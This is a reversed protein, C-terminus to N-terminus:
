SAIWNGHFGPPIRHPIHVLAVPPEAFRTADLIVLDTTESRPDIVYGMLWGDGEAADVSRPVFVFEGPVKGAGFDHVERTGAVVDHKYLRSGISFDVSAGIALTFAFRYPKAIFREDPRPFEQADADIVKRVVRRAAADITWRDFRLQRSDPGYPSDAFMTGHAAVDVIVTGDEADFANCPHFVYCPEVDCWIVDDNSGERPLLGVRARHDPNWAYPFAYGAILRKMSFTVPLDFVLVFRESIACDHISPGHQVKIPAERRVRGDKGVVVHRVVNTVDGRYCIAHLEGTAPDLHPHASFSGGLTDEFANYAISELDSSLEIPFSGAEVLAWIKGAHGIVNTNVTGGRWALPGPISAEGLADSVDDSRTWRNRYWLAKGAKLRVAHVMGDGVFWHYSTPDPAIPNPGIRVYHGDLSAPITGTHALETLMKEETMPAHIGTLFPHAAVRPLRRRNFGAVADVGAGVARRIVTEVASAM